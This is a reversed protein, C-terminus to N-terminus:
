HQEIKYLIWYDTEFKKEMYLRNDANHLIQLYKPTLQTYGNAPNKDSAVLIYNAYKGPNEVASVFNVQYPMILGQISNIFAAIPYAVADDLLVRPNGPLANIYNAVDQNDAQGEPIEKKLLVNIFNQEEKIYSKDLFAYGTYIQLAVILILGIKFNTQNKVTTARIIICLLALILFILYYQQTLYVKDYKIRLFEVFAFPTILTLIQYTKQRFLYIAMLMLPCFLIVRLSIIISTEPLKHHTATDRLINYDIKEALVSWTAYPSDIFYNLDSAHTLNLMKYIMVSVLPLIFIIIYLAFTKNILKRRLSPNNFSTFLRFISEKESLNLSQISISLVLPLFFLTLWIFRYDCFVLVVLCISAISVHFTTNSTYFKFINLYFMFFFILVMYISKGSCAAYLMGPHLMFVALLLMIYFDDQVKKMLTNAMVNFLLATGVASALIPALNYSIATFLFTGFFPFMPSTLGMVKLRDGMGEFVIKAKEVYFLSEQNFYGQSNLYLACIVYYVTLVITIILLFVAKSIRM